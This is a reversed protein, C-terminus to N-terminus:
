TGRQQFELERAAKAKAEAEANAKVTAEARARAEAELQATLADRATTAAGAKGKDDNERAAVIAAADDAIQQAAVAAEALTKATAAAESAKDAAAKATEAAKRAREVDFNGEVVEAHGQEVHRLTEETAAYFKGAAYKVQGADMWDTKYRVITDVPKQEAAQRDLNAQRNGVEPDTSKRNLAAQQEAQADPEENPSKKAM